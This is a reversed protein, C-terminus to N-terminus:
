VIFDEDDQITVTETDLEYGNEKWRDLFDVIANKYDDFSQYEARKFLKLEGHEFKIGIGINQILGWTHKIDRYKLYITDHDWTASDFIVESPNGVFSAAGCRGMPAEQDVSTIYREHLAYDIDYINKIRNM